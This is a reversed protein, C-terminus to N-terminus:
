ERTNHYKNEIETSGKKHKEPKQVTNKAKYSSSKKSMEIVEFNINWMSFSIYYFHFLLVPFLLLM